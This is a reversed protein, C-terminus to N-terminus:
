RATERGPDALVLRIPPEERSEHNARYQALYAGQVERLVETREARQDPGQTMPIMLAVTAYPKDGHVVRDNEEKIRASVPGLEDNLRVRRRHRGHM